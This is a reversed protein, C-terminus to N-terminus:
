IPNLLIFKQECILDTKEEISFFTHKQASSVAKHSQTTAAITSSIGNVQMKATLPTTVEELDEQTIASLM